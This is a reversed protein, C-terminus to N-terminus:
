KPRAVYEVNATYEYETSRYKRQFEKYVPHALCADRSRASDFLASEDWPEIGYGGNQLNDLLKAQLEDLLASTYLQEFFTFNNTPAVLDDISRSSELEPIVFGEVPHFTSGSLTLPSVAPITPTQPIVPDRISPPVPKTPMTTSPTPPFELEPATKTFDPVPVDPLDDIHSPTFTPKAASIDAVSIANPFLSRLLALTAAANGNDFGADPIQQVNPVFFFTTQALDSLKALFGDATSVADVAFQQQSAVLSEASM